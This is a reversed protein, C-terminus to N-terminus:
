GRWKWFALTLAAGAAAGLLASGAVVRTLALRGEPDGAPTAVTSRPTPVPEDIGAEINEEDEEFGCEPCSVYAKERATRNSYELETSCRPCALGAPLGRVLEYLAGKSLDLDDAIHNVSADSSWYLENAHAELDREPSTEM